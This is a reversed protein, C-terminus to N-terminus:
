FTLYPIMAQGFRARRLADGTVASQRLSHPARPRPEHGRERAAGSVARGASQPGAQSSSAPSPCPFIRTVGSSASGLFRPQLQASANIRRLSGATSRRSARAGSARGLPLMRERPARGRGGIRGPNSAGKPAGGGKKLSASPLAQKPSSHCLEPACARRSFSLAKKVEGRARPSTSRLSPSPAEGRNQAGCSEAWRLPGRMGVKEGCAPLLLACVDRSQNSEAAGVPPPPFSFHLALRAGLM